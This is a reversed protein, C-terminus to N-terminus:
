AACQDGSQRLRIRERLRTTRALTTTAAVGDGLHADDDYGREGAPPNKQMKILDSAGALEFVMILTKAPPLLRRITQLATTPAGEGLLDVRLRGVLLNGRLLNAILFGLPNVTAPLSAATPQTTRAGPPRQDLYMALSQAEIGRRHVEAWFAEVDEPRGEIPFRMRTVIEPGSEIEWTAERNAFYLPAHLPIGIFASDLSLGHLWVPPVADAVFDRLEVGEFLPQGARLTDGPSVIAQADAPGRYLRTATSVLSREPLVHVALVTEEAEALPSGAVAALLEELARRSSGCTLSRYVALLFNRGAETSPLPQDVAFGFLQSLRDQDFQARHLWIVIEEDGDPLPTRPFADDTFPDRRFRLVATKGDPDNSVQFDVGRVWTRSSAALRNSAVTAATLRGLTSDPVAWSYLFQTASDGYARGEGYLGASGYRLRDLATRNRASLRLRVPYHERTYFLPLRALAVAARLGALDRHSQSDVRARATLLDRVQEPSEFVESWFTGVTALLRDPQDFPTPYIPLTPM